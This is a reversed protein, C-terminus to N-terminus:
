AARRRSASSRTRSCSSSPTSSSSKPTTARSCRTSSGACGSTPIRRPPMSGDAGGGHGDQDKYLAHAAVGYEAIQHMMETRIQLEVRQHRPGVITTHLSQYNNQKPTSIYDKFRGPVARWTTHVIGLARYCADVSDVVIRFGYIDSLQELSIQRNEMKRWISFPKKERGYVEATSDPM